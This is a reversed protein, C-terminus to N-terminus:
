KFNKYLFAEFNRPDYERFTTRVTEPYDKGFGFPSPADFDLEKYRSPYMAFVPTREYWSLLLLSSHCSVVATARKVVEATGPVSLRDTLDIMESTDYRFLTKPAHPGSFTRGLLVVPIGRVKSLISISKMVEVPINRNEVEMGSATPAIALFPKSPLTDLVIRDEPSPWFSVPARSRSGHPLLPDNPVGASLRKGRDAYETFFSKASIVEFQGAKPHWRFIEHVFPNHSIIVIRAKQGPEIMSLWEYGMTEHMVIFADGLGGCLQLDILM